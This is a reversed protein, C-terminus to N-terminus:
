LILMRWFMLRQDIRQEGNDPPLAGKKPPGLVEAASFFSTRIQLKKHFEVGFCEEALLNNLVEETIKKIFTSVPIYTIEKSFIESEMWRLFWGLAIPIAAINIQTPEPPDGDKKYYNYNFTGTVFRPRITTFEEQYDDSAYIGM